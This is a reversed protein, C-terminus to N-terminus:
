QTEGKDTLGLMARVIARAEAQQREEWQTLAAEQKALYANQEECSEDPCGLIIHGHACQPIVFPSM